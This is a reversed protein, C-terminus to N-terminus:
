LLFSYICTSIFVYLVYSKKRKETTIYALGHRRSLIGLSRCCLSRYPSWQCVACCLVYMCMVCNIDRSSSEEVVRCVKMWLCMISFMGLWDCPGPLSRGLFPSNVCGSRLVNIERDVSMLCMYIYMTVYMVYLCAVCM